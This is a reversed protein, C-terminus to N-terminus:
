TTDSETVVPVVCLGGPGETWPIKRTAMGKGKELPDDQGLSQVQTEQMAPLIQVVSGGPFGITKVVERYSGRLVWSAPTERLGVVGMGAGRSSAAELLQPYDELSPATTLAATRAESPTQSPSSGWETSAALSFVLRLLLSIVGGGGCGDGTDSWHM